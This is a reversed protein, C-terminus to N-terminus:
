RNGRSDGWALAGSRKARFKRPIEGREYRTELVDGPAYTSPPLEAIKPADLLKKAARRAPEASARQVPKRSLRKRTM